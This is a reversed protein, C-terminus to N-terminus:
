SAQLRYRGGAFAQLTPEAERRAAQQGAAGQVARIHEAARYGGEARRLVAAAAARGSGGGSQGCRLGAARGQGGAPACSASDRPRPPWARTSGTSDRHTAPCQSWFNSTLTQGQRVCVENLDAATRQLCQQQQQTQVGTNWGQWCWGSSWLEVILGRQDRVLPFLVVLSRALSARGAMCSSLPAPNPHWRRRHVRPWCAQRASQVTCRGVKHQANCQQVPVIAAADCHLM